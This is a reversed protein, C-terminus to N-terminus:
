KKGSFVKALDVKEEEKFRNEQQNKRENGTESTEEGPISGIANGAGKIETEAIKGPDEDKVETGNSNQGIGKQKVSNEQNPEIGSGRILENLTAREDGLNYELKQSRQDYNRDLIEQNKGQVISKEGVQSHKADTKVSLISKAKEIAEYMSVALGQNKLTEALQTVKEDEM